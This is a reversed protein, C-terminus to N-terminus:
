VIRKFLKELDYRRIRYVAPRGHPCTYPNELSALDSLLAKIEIEDLKDHAKVASRCALRYLAEDAILSRDSGDQKMVFDLLDTFCERISMNEDILPASRIIVSNMGFSEFSFGLKEFFAAESMAFEYESATLDVHIASLLMQSIPRDQQYAKKLREYRIREHAAHQDLLFVEDTGELLIYTSFLQGVIRVNDFLGPIDVTGATDKVYGADHLKVPADPGSEYIGDQRDRQDDGADTVHLDPTKDDTGVRIDGTRDEAPKADETENGRFDPIWTDREPYRGSTAERYRRDPENRVLEFEQQTYAQTQTYSATSVTRGSASGYDAGTGNEPYGAIGAQAKSSSHGTGTGHGTGADPGTSKEAGPLTRVSAQSLLANKVAHYVARFIEQENSFKVELKSPHVNVDVKSLDTVIDLVIFPHRGKMLFTAYAADIASTVTKNRIYRRNIYVSQNSRGARATEALGAYGVVSIGGDEYDVRALHKATEAGYISFIVSKLDGNGPTHLVKRGNNVLTFSIEPHSMAIRNLIDAAYGAEVSDKKLFKYRAPTNFFLESVTISTGAPCGAPRIEDVVGGTVTVCVGQVSDHTRTMMKVKSVAAISALAEGRFGMTAISGLDDARRIKSTAHSEFAMAADDESMGCGNDTVRIFSIGGNRIEVNIVTAGADISNEVLEKVVSAPREAVEGAAIKNVTNEDLIIIKGM